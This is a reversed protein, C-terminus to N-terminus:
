APSSSAAPRTSRRPPRSGPRLEAAPGVAVIEGDHVAVAGAPVVTGAADVTLVDGGHVLLDVETM